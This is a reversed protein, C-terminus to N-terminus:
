RGVGDDESWELTVTGKMDGSRRETGAGRISLSKSRRLRDFFEDYAAADRARFSVELVLSKGYSAVFSEVRIGNPLLAAQEEIFRRPPIRGVLKARAVRQSLGATGAQALTRELDRVERRTREVEAQAQVKVARAVRLASGVAILLGLGLLVLIAGVVDVRPRRPRTSFDRQMESM